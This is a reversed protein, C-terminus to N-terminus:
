KSTEQAPPGHSSSGFPRDASAPTAALAAVVFALAFFMKMATSWQDSHAVVSMNGKQKNITAMQGAVANIWILWLVGRLGAADRFTVAM